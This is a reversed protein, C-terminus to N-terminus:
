NEGKQREAQVARLMEIARYLDRKLASRYRTMTDLSGGLVARIELHGGTSKPPQTGRSGHEINPEPCGRSWALRDIDKPRQGCSGSRTVRECDWARDLPLDGSDVPLTLEGNFLGSIESRASQRRSLEQIELGETIGLKWCVNTIEEVLFEELKGAPQYDDNWSQWLAAYEKKEDDNLTRKKRQLIGHLTSNQSTTSKGKETRPGTSLQANAQNAARVADTVTKRLKM